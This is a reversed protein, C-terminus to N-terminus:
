NLVGNTTILASVLVVAFVVPALLLLAHDRVLAVAAVAASATAVMLAVLTCGWLLFFWPTDAGPQMLQQTIWAGLPAAVAVVTAVVFVLSAARGLSSDPVVWVRHEHPHHPHTMDQM